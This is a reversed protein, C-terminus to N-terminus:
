KKEEEEDDQNPEPEGRQKAIERQTWDHTAKVGAKIVGPNELADNLQNKLGEKIHQRLGEKDLVDQLLVSGKRALSDMNKVFVQEIFTSKMNNLVSPNQMVEKEILRTTHVLCHDTTLYDAIVKAMLKNVDRVFPEHGLMKTFQRVMLDQIRPIQVLKVLQGSIKEAIKQDELLACLKIVGMAKKAEFEKMMKERDDILEQGRMRYDLYVFFFVLYILFNLNM